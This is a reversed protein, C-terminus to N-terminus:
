KISEILDYMDLRGRQSPSERKKVGDGEQVNMERRFTSIERRKLMM